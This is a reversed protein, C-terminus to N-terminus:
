EFYDIMQPRHFPRIFFEHVVKNFLDPNEVPAMHTEGPFICLQAQPINQYILVTHEERIVDSDGALILVPSSIKHLDILSIHPQKELLQLQQRMLAWNKSTDNMAIMSEVGQMQRKVWNVVWPHVASTDPQLNAGMAALKKVKQPHHIALLLGIIGGDSWGIVFTSDIKLLDLLAAWDDAMQEYTLTGEGLESKGHGRSDAAIVRYHSSFHRIQYRMDWICDNNGHIVIVNEGCGYIEYYMKVGNVDAYKGARNMGYLDTRSFRRTFLLLSVLCIVLTGAILWTAKCKSTM